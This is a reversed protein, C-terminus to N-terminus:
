TTAVQGQANYTTETVQSTGDDLVRGIRSPNRWWGLHTPSPQGPYQYWVRGELPRAISHPVTIWESDGTFDQRILWHTVEAKSLDGTGAAGARQSWYLTNYRNLLSNAADFGAPVEAAPVSAPLARTDFQYELHETGGLPDTAEIFRPVTGAYYWHPEQRFTTLGYPTTLATV